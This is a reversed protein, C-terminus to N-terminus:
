TGPDGSILLSLCFAPVGAEGWRRARTPEPGQLGREACNAPPKCPTPTALWFLPATLRAARVILSSGQPWLRLGSTPGEPSVSPDGRNDARASAPTVTSAWPSFFFVSPLAGEGRPLPGRQSRGPWVVGQGRGCPKLEAAAPECDSDTRGATSKSQASGPCGDTARRRVCGGESGHEGATRHAHGWGQAPRVQDRGSERDREAKENGKRPTRTQGKQRKGGLDRQEKGRVDMQNYTLGKDM